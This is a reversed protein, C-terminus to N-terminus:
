PTHPTYDVDYSTWKSGVIRARYAEIKSRDTDGNCNIVTASPVQAKIYDRWPPTVILDQAGARTSVRVPALRSVYWDDRPGGDRPPANATCVYYLTEIYQAEAPYSTDSGAPTSGGEGGTRASYSSGAQSTVNTSGSGANGGQAARYQANGQALGRNISGQLQAEMQANSAAVEASGKAMAAAMQGNGSTVAAGQMMLGAATAADAGGAVAAVGGVAAGLLTGFLGGGGSSKKAVEAARAEAALREAQVTYVARTAPWRAEEIRNPRVLGDKGLKGKYFVLQGNPELVLVMKARPYYISGDGLIKLTDLPKRSLGGGQVVYQWLLTRPEPGPVLVDTRFPKGDMFQKLAFERGESRWFYETFYRDTMYGDGTVLRPLIGWRRDLEAATPLPSVQSVSEPDATASQAALPTAVVLAATAAIARFFYM